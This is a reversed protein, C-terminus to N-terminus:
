GKRIGKFGQYGVQVVVLLTLILLVVSIPSTFFDQVTGGSLILAERL